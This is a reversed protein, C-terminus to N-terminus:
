RRAVSRAAPKAASELGCMRVALTQQASFGEVSFSVTAPPANFPAFSFSMTKAGAIRRIMGRGDPAFLADHDISHEWKQEIPKSGDFSMMITHRNSNDEIMAPAETVIFVETARAACRVTLVPRVRKRWVEVDGDASLEFVMNAGFGAKRPNRSAAWRPAAASSNQSEVRSEVAAQSEVAGPATAVASAAAAGTELPAANSEPSPSRMASAVLMLSGMGTVALVVLALLLRPSKARGGTPQAPQAVPAAAEADPSQAAPEAASVAQPEPLPSSAFNDAPTSDDM